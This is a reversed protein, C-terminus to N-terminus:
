SHSHDLEGMCDVGPEYPQWDGTITYITCGPAITWKPLDNKNQFFKFNGKPRELIFFPYHKVERLERFKQKEGKAIKCAYEIGSNKKEFIGSIFQGPKEVIFM